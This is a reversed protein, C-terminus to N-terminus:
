GDDRRVPTGRVAVTGWRLMSPPMNYTTLYPPREFADVATRGVPPCCRAEEDLDSLEVPTYPAETVPEEGM